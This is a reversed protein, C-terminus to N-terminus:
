SNDERRRKKEKKPNDKLLNELGIGLLPFLIKLGLTIAALGLFISAFNMELLPHELETFARWFSLFTQLIQSLNSM